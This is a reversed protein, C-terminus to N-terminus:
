QPKGAGCGSCERADHPNMKECYACKWDAVSEKEDQAQQKDDQAKEEAKKEKSAMNAIIKDMDKGADTLQSQLTSLLSAASNPDTAGNRLSNDINQLTRDANKVTFEAAIMDAADMSSLNIDTVKKRLDSKKGEIRELDSIWGSSLLSNAKAMQAIKEEGDAMNQTQDMLGSAETYTTNLAQSFGPYQVKLQNIKEQNRTWKSSEGELTKKCASFLVLLAAIRFILTHLKM